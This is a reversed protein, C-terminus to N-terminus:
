KIGGIFIRSNVNELRLSATYRPQLGKIFVLVRLKVSIVCLKM